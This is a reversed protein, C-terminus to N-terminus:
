CCHIDKGHDNKEGNLTEFLDTFLTDRNIWYVYRIHHRSEDFKYVGEDTVIPSTALCSKMFRDEDNLLWGIATVDWIVRSWATGAGYSEAHSITNKALYDSLPNKGVLWHELEYRTTRFESVVGLCPLLVVPAGCDFVVRAAAFDQRMNFEKTHHWNFSHGGLWVIVTNEKMIEPELLIASAVNTIAGIAVVYLPNEPSYKKATEAIYKAADSIVPTKDNPLWSSSGRYVNKAFDDKKMLSLLKLIENYSKEMGDAASSSYKNYFPAACIGVTNIREKSLLMYSIAFQDDIENFADTDLIADIKGSPVELNRYFIDKNM